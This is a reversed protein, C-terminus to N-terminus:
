ALLYLSVALGNERRLVEYPADQQLNIEIKSSQGDSALEVARIGSVINGEAVFDTHLAAEELVTEPFYLVVSLPVPKKVLTYTLMRNGEIEVRYSNTEETASISKIAKSALPKVPDSSVIKEKTACATFAAMWFLLM